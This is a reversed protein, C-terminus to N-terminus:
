FPVGELDDSGPTTPFRTVSATPSPEPVDRV